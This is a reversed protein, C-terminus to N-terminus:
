KVYFISYVCHSVIGVIYREFKVPLTHFNPHAIESQVTLGIAVQGKYLHRLSGRKIKLGRVSAGASHTPRCVRYEPYLM